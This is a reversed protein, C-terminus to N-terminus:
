DRLFHISDVFEGAVPLWPELERANRAWIFVFVTTGDIDAVLLRAPLGTLFYTGGLSQMRGTVHIDTGGIGPLSAVLAPRGDLKTEAIASIQVGARDHLDALFEAPATRLVFRGASSHSWASGGSGIVVGRVQWPAPQAETPTQGSPYPWDDPGNVWAVMASIRNGSVRMDAGDPIAYEFPHFFTSELLKPTPDDRLLASGIVGIAILAWAVLVLIIARVLPSRLRVARPAMSLRWAPWARRDFAAVFPRRQRADRSTALASELVATPVHQPGNEELVSALLRDFDFTSSM